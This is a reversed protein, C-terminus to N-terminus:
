QQQEADKKNLAIGAAELRNMEQMTFLLFEKVEVPLDQEAPPFFKAVTKQARSLVTARRMLASRDATSCPWVGGVAQKAAEITSFPQKALALEVRAEAPDM